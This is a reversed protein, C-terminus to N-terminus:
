RTSLFVEKRLGKADIRLRLPLLRLGRGSRIGDLGTTKLMTTLLTATRHTTFRHSLLAMQGSALGRGGGGGFGGGRSDDSDDFQDRRGGTDGEDACGKFNGSLRAKKSPRGSSM